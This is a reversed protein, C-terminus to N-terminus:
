FSQKDNVPCLCFVKFAPHKMQRLFLTVKDDFVCLWSFIILMKYKRTGSLLIVIGVALAAGEEPSVLHRKGFILGFVDVRLVIAAPGIHPPEADGIPLLGKSDFAQLREAYSCPVIAFLIEFAHTMGMFDLAATEDIQVDVQVDMAHATDIGPSLGCKRLVSDIRVLRVM